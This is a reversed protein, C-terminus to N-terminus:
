GAQGEALQDLLSSWHDEAAHGSKQIHPTSPRVEVVRHAVEDVKGTRFHHRKIAQGVDPGRSAAHSPPSVQDRRTMLPEIM